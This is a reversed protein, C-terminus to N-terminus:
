GTGSVLNRTMSNWPMLLVHLLCKDFCIWEVQLMTRHNDVLKWKHWSFHWKLYHNKWQFMPKIPFLLFSLAAALIKALFLKNLTLKIAYNVREHGLYWSYIILLMIYNTWSKELRRLKAQFCTVLEERLSRYYNQPLDMTYHWISQDFNKLSLTLSQCFGQWCLCVCCVNRQEFDITSVTFFTYLRNLTLLLSVETRTDKNNVKRMYWM